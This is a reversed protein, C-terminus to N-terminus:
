VVHCCRPLCVCCARRRASTSGQPSRLVDSVRPLTAAIKHPLAGRASVPPSFYRRAVHEREVDEGEKNTPLSDACIARRKTRGAITHVHSSRRATSRGATSGADGLRANRTASEAGAIASTAPSRPGRGDPM